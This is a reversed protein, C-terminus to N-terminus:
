RGNASVPWSRVGPHPHENHLRCSACSLVCHRHVCSRRFGRWESRAWDAAALPEAAHELEIVALGRLWRGPKRVRHPLLRADSRHHVVADRERHAEGTGVPVVRLFGHDDYVRNRWEIAFTASGPAPRGAHRAAQSSSFEHVFNWFTRSSLESMRVDPSATLTYLLAEWTRAHVHCQNMWGAVAILVFRFPDPVIPM